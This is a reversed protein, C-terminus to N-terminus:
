SLAFCFCVCVAAPCCWFFFFFTCLLSKKIELYGGDAACVAISCWNVTIGVCCSVSIDGYHSCCVHCCRLCINELSGVSQHRTVGALAAPVDADNGPQQVGRVVAMCAESSVCRPHWESATM